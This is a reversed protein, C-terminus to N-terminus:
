EDGTTGSTGGSSGCTGSTAQLRGLNSSSACPALGIAVHSPGYVLKTDLSSPISEDLGGLIAMGVCSTGTHVGDAKKAEGELGACARNVMCSFAADCCSNSFTAVAFGRGQLSTSRAVPKRHDGGRVEAAM